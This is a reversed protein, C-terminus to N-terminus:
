NQQVKSGKIIVDSSAKVNIKGSGELTIDKGKITITGDKKMTISASGTTLTISDAADLKYTKGASMTIDKSVTISQAGSVSVSQDKAVSVTQAGGVTESQDKGVSLTQAKAITISQDDDVQITEQKTVSHSRAGSVKATEDKTVSITRNGSITITEDNSVTETRDHGVTTTEDNKVDKKRDHGVSHTEDNEVSIDQNKEAHIYLQEEGKKDEFRIENCNEPTGGKSSRTKIGSQTKNDQLAYPPKNTGNYVSGVIIPEDPDGEEFAVIVEHGMRPISIAGWQKGAWATAVRVWCSSNEDSKGYRDWHFQVKVRGFEDTWIEEGSVGVVVATQTGQVIPKPTIRAPRYHEKASVAELSVAFQEAGEASGTKYTDGSIELSSGTILYKMNLDGRPYDALTFVHGAALGAANGSGRATMQAVQLEEVRLKAVREVGKATLPTAEAPYDFVEYKAADHGRSITSTGALSLSPKKFDFDRTAYSGPHFSKQFSWAALHDRDRRNDAPPFYPVTDYGAVPKCKSVDDCLVLVHKNESHEFFYFIGEQELLRSLFNFDTERYQVCYDWPDYTGGLQLDYDSFGAQRCVDKFIDPVSKNQFIRCDATRTLFWFWPRVVARYEHRREEYGTQSFDTVLGHFYRKHQEDITVTVTAPHGLLKDPDIDGKDSLLTLDFHFLQSVHETASMHVFLLVDKGLPTTIRISRNDQYSAM